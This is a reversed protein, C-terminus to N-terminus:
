MQTYNVNKKLCKVIKKGFFHWSWVASILQRHCLLFIILSHQHLLTRCIQKLLLLFSESPIAHQLTRTVFILKGHATIPLPWHSCQTVLPFDNKQCKQHKDSRVPRNYEVGWKLGTSHSLQQSIAKFGRFVSNRKQSGLSTLPWAWDGHLMCPALRSETDQKSVSWRSLHQRDSPNSGSGNVQLVNEWERNLAQM